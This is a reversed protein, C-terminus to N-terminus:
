RFGEQLRAARLRRWRWRRAYGVLGGVAVALLAMTSPEPVPSVLLDIYGGMDALSYVEGAPAAPLAFNGLTSADFSGGVAILPYDGDVTPDVGFAIPTHPGVTLGNTITLLDGNGGPTTLDFDLTLNSDTLLSGITLNGVQGVGGPAIVSGGSGAQVQVNGEIFGGASPDSALTGGSLIVSGSGTASGNAGSASGATGNAAVLIGGNIITGGTYTNSGSLVLVGGGALTVSTGPSAESVPASITLSSGTTASVSLNSQLVLPVAITHNGGNNSLPFSTGTGALTLTSTTDGDALAILYSGGGTTCFTLAGITWNGDLTVTATSSGIATGFTVADPASSGPIGYANGNNTTGNSITWNAANFWSAGMNNAWIFSSPQVVAIGWWHNPNLGTVLSANVTAGSTTYEGICGNGSNVVFLDNGSVAIGLPDSLGTILSANVTAGSTTYEGVTGTTGNTVFLDSGSVALFLPGGLGTVLSANVTAGSTTYEGITGSAYSVVFLDTGSVAIGYGFPSAPLSVLSVAVPLGSTTYEDISSTAVNTVFLDSGSTAIGFYANGNAVLSANVTGGSTTYEGIGNSGNAGPVFLDNGSVAIGYWGVGATNSVLPNSVLAGSTTWEAVVAGGGYVYTAYIDGGRAAEASAVAVVAAVLGRVMTRGFM